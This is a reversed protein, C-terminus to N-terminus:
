SRPQAMARVVTGWLTEKAFTLENYFKDAAEPDISPEVHPAYLSVGQLKATRCANRGHELIFRGPGTQGTGAVTPDASILFDGLAEAAGRLSPDRCDRLLNLCLDAVDVFPKEEITQSRVFADTAREMEDSDSAMAIALKRALTETLDVVERVRALDLLTLSVTLQDARYTECFRRVIYTGLEAPGMTGAKPDMIREFARRYPWGPIPIGIESALLYDAYPQFQCAIEITSLDCADFGLIDLSRGRAQRVLKLVDALEGFDLADIGTRREAHGIAFEYAHGWLVLMSRTDKEDGATQFAWRMFAMLAKGDTADREAEPVRVEKATRRIDLRRSEGRANVQVFLNLAGGPYDTFLSRMEDIDDKAAQRLDTEDPVGEVGMFVMVNWSAQAASVKKAM